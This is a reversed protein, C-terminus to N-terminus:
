PHTGSASQDRACLQDLLPISETLSIDMGIAKRRGDAASISDVTGRDFRGDACVRNTGYPQPTGRALAIRDATRAYHDPDLSRRTVADRMGSLVGERLATGDLDDRDPVHQLLLWLAREGDSGLRPWGGTAVIAAVRRSNADIIERRITRTCDDTNSPPPQRGWCDPPVATLSLAAQDAAARLVLESALCSTDSIECALNTAAELSPPGDGFPTVAPAQQLLLALLLFHAFSHMDSCECRAPQSAIRLWVCPQSTVSVVKASIISRQKLLCYSTSTVVLGRARTCATPRVRERSSAALIPPPPSPPPSVSHTEGVSIVWPSGGSVMGSSFIM